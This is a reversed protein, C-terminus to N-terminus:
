KYFKYLRRMGVALSDDFEVGAIYNSNMLAAELTQANSYTLYTVNVLSSSLSQVAEAVIQELLPNQPSYPM